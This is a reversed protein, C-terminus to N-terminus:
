EIRELGALKLQGIADHHRWQRAVARGVGTGRRQHCLVIGLAGRRAQEDGFRRGVALLALASLAMTRMTVFSKNLDQVTDM